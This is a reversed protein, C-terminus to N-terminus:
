SCDQGKRLAALNARMVALYDKGASQSTLGELPDLVASGAGTERAVTKAVAPSVLTEHYITRVDHKRAFTAASSLEAPSPEQEPSLGTIGFQTLGYRHALYGFAAHSTVLDHNRCTALGARFERDLTTLDTRLRAANARFAGAHAPDAGALRDAIADGVAALRVPDLWFHPDKGSAVSDAGEGGEVHNGHDAHGSEGASPAPLTLKAAGTVDLSHDGAEQNVASDVAPQLGRLYVVLDAQSVTGVARPSLELDHPEAGPKTLNVVNATDGAVREAAYQLPYFAAVVSLRDGGGSGSGAESGCATLLSGACLGALAVAGFRRAAAARRIVFFM